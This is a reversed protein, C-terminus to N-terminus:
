PFSNESALPNRPVLIFSILPKGFVGTFSQFVSGMPFSQAM